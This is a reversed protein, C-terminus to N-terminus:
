SAMQGYAVWNVRIPAAGSAAGGGLWGQVTFSTTSWTYVTLSRVTTSNVDGIAPVVVPSTAFAIPFTIVARGNADLTVVDSSAQSGIISAYRRWGSGSNRMIVQVDNVDAYVPKSVSPAAEGAAALATLLDALAAANPVSYIGGRAVLNLVKDLPKALATTNTPAPASPVHIPWTPM